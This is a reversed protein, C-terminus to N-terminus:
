IEYNCSASVLMRMASPPMSRWERLISGVRMPSIFHLPSAALLLLVLLKMRREPDGATKAGADSLQRGLRDHYGARSNRRRRGDHPAPGAACGCAAIPKLVLWAFGGGANWGNIGGGNWDGSIRDLFDARHPAAHSGANKLIVVERIRRFRTGARKLGTDGCRWFRSFSHLPGGVLDPRCDVSHYRASGGHQGGDGHFNITSPRRFRQCWRPKPV